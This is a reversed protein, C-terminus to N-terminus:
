KPLIKNILRLCTKIYHKIHMFIKFPLKGNKWPKMLLVKKENIKNERNHTNFLAIFDQAQKKLSLNEVIYSRPTLSAWTKELTDVYEKIRNKEKTKIGCRTDFYEATTTNTYELENQNFILSESKNPQWHGIKEVDWVLMPVNMALAEELAIGQSEQRGIWVMYKTEKLIEIYDKQNYYGYVIVKYPIHQEKLIEEVFRLEEHSRQKVYVLVIGHTPRKREVFMGTDIGAPWVDMPCKDFGFDKWFDKSWQSPYIYIFNSLDTNKPISRPLLYINPGIIAKLQLRSAEQVADPDDHIWLQSTSDLAKNVCYPYQLIDLGKILNEAVKKPGNTGQSVISRSIINLM